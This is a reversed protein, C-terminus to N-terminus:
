LLMIFIIFFVINEMMHPQKNHQNYRPKFLNGSIKWWNLHFILQFIHQKKNKREQIKNFDCLIPFNTCAVNEKIKKQVANSSLFAFLSHFLTINKMYEVFSFRWLLHLCKHSISSCRKKKKIQERFSTHFGRFGESKSDYYVVKMSVDDVSASPLRYVLYEVM